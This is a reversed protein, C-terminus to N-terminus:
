EKVVKKKARKAKLEEAKSAAKSEDKVYTEGTFPNNLQFLQHFAQLYKAYIMSKQQIKAEREGHIKACEECGKTPGPYGQDKMVKPHAKYYHERMRHVDHNILEGMNWMQVLERIYIDKGYSASSQCKPCMFTLWNTGDNGEMANVFNMDVNCKNCRMKHTSWNLDCTEHVSLFTLGLDTIASDYFSDAELITAIILMANYGFEQFGHSTFLDDPNVSTRHKIINKERAINRRTWEKAIELMIMTQIKKVKFDTVKPMFKFAKPLQKIHKKILYMKKFKPRGSDEAFDLLDEGMFSIYNMSELAESKDGENYKQIREELDSNINAEKERQKRIAKQRKTEKM